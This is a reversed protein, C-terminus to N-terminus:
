KSELAAIREGYNQIADKMITFEVKETETFNSGVTHTPVYGELRTCLDNVTAKLVQLQRGYDAIADKMVQFEMKEAPTM